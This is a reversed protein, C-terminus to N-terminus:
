SKINSMATAKINQIFSAWFEYGSIISLDARIPQISLSTVTGPHLKVADKETCLLAEAGLARCHDSFASLDMANPLSHDPCYLKDVINVGAEELTNCFREPKAIGCFIGVKKERYNRTNAELRMCVVPATSYRILQHRVHETNNGVAVILDARALAKPSERLLGRPFLYGKGFPDDADVVIIEFDRKLRRHQLGDDLILIRRGAAASMKASQCRDKGVVVYAEPHRSAMLFPEDGCYDVSHKPGNGESLFVPIPLKEAKSRYGRSLISVNEAGLDQILRLTLPTKGTGGVVINGVSIVTTEEPQHISFWNKDYGYNRLKTVLSYPWSVARLGAKIAPTWTTQLEDSIISHWYCEFHNRM